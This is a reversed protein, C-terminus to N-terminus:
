LKSFKELDEWDENARSFSESSLMAKTAVMMLYNDPITMEVRAAQLQAKELAVIYQPITDTIVHMTWMEDQLDLLDIAHHGTCVVQLQDLLEKTKRKM